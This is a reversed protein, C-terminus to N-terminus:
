EPVRLASSMAISRFWQAALAGSEDADCRAVIRPQSADSGASAEAVLGRGAIGRGLVLAVADRREHNRGRPGVHPDADLRESVDLGHPRIVRAAALVEIM